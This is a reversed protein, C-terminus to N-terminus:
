RGGAPASIADLLPDLICDPLRGRLVRQATLVAEADRNRWVLRVLVSGDRRHMPQTLPRLEYDLGEAMRAVDQFVPLEAFPWSEMAPLRRPPVRIADQGRRQLASLAIM